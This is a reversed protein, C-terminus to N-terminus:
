ADAQPLEPFLCAFRDFYFVVSVLSGVWSNVGKLGNVKTTRDTHHLAHSAFIVHMCMVMIVSMVVFMRM